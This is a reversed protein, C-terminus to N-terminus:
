EGEKGSDGKGGLQKLKAFVASVDLEGAPLASLARATLEERLRNYLQIPVDIGISVLITGFALSVANIRGYLLEAAAATWVVGVVLPIAVFITKVVEDVSKGVFITPDYIIKYELGPPFDKRLTKM